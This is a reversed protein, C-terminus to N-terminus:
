GLFIKSMQVDNGEENFATDMQYVKRNFLLVRSPHWVAMFVMGLWMPLADFVYAFAEHRGLYGDRETAGASAYEVLRDVSRVLIMASAVYLALLTTEWTAHFWGDTAICSSISKGSPSRHIRYHFAAAVIFFVSFFILQIVLGAIIVNQGTTRASPDTTTHTMIVGGAGQILFSVIDGAVFIVTLWRTPVISLDEKDLYFIMRSLAMYLTSAYLPPALLIFLTHITFITVNSTNNHAEARAIYGIIEFIGGLIFCIFYWAHARALQYVHCATTALFLLVFIAAAAVSPNYDYLEYSSDERSLIM